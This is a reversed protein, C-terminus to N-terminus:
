VAAGLTLRPPQFNLITLNPCLRLAGENRFHSLSDAVGNLEGPIHFVRLSHLSNLLLQAAFMILQNYAPRAKLTNFMCVIDFNDTYIAIKYRFDRRLSNIFFYLASVVALGELYIIDDSHTTYHQAGLVLSPVWFGLGTLCADSLASVNAESPGWEVSTMFFVGDTFSLRDAIWLLQRSIAVSV